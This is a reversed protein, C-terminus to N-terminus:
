SRKYKIRMFEQLILQLSLSMKDLDLTVIVEKSNPNSFKTAKINSRKENSLHILNRIYIDDQSSKPAMLDEYLKDIDLKKDKSMQKIKTYHEM